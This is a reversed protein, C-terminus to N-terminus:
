LASGRIRASAREMEETSKCRGHAAVAVMAVIEGLRSGCGGHDIEGDAMEGDEAVPLVPLMMEKGL